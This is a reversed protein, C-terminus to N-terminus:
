RVFKYGIRQVTKLHAPHKPDNELKHRLRCIQNDLARGATLDERKLQAMLNDRSLVRDENEILVELIRFQKATLTISAGARTIALDVFDVVVDGFQFKETKKNGSTSRRLSSRVRALLEQAAFPKTLYDDAGLELLLVKEAVDTKSSLVLVPMTPFSRKLERCVDIGSLEPLQLELVVASPPRRKLLELAAKGDSKCEVAFGQSELVHRLTQQVKKDSDIVVIRQM